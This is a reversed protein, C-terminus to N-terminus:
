DYLWMVNQDKSDDLDCHIFTKAIGIRTFGAKLLADLILSRNRSGAAAIDAALGKVHVDSKSGCDKNHIECRYGSNIVFSVGALERANDLRKIVEESMENRECHKCAFEDYDFHNFTM